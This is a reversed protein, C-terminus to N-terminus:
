TTDLIKQSTRSLSSVRPLSSRVFGDNGFPLTDNRTPIQYGITEQLFRLSGYGRHDGCLVPFTARRYFDHGKWWSAKATYDLQVSKESLCFPVSFGVDTSSEQDKGLHSQARKYADTMMNEYNWDGYEDNALSFSPIGKVAPSGVVWVDNKSRYYRGSMCKINSGKVPCFLGDSFDNHQFHQDAKNLVCIEKFWGCTVFNEDYGLVKGAM